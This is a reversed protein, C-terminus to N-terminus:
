SNAYALFVVVAGGVVSVYSFLLNLSQISHTHM